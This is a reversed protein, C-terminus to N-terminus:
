GNRREGIGAVEGSGEGSREGVDSPTPEPGACLRGKKGVVEADPGYQLQERQLQRVSVWGRGNVVVRLYPKNNSDHTVIDRYRVKPVLLQDQVYAPWARRGEASAVDFSGGAVQITCPPPQVALWVNGSLASLSTAIPQLVSQTQELSIQVCQLKEQLQNCYHLVQLHYSRATKAFKAFKAFTLCLLIALLVVALILAAVCFEHRVSSRTFKKSAWDMSLGMKRMDVLSRFEKMEKTQKMANTMNLLPQRWLMLALVTGRIMAQLM